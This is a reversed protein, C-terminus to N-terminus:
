SIPTIPLRSPRGGFVSAWFPNWFEANHTLSVLTPGIPHGM